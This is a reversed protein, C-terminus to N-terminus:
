PKLAAVLNGKKTYIWKQKRLFQLVGEQFYNENASLLIKAFAKSRAFDINKLFNDFGEIIPRKDEYSIRPVEALGIDKFFTKAIKPYRKLCRAQLSADMYCIGPCAKFYQALLENKVYVKGPIKFM